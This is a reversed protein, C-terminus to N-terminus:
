EGGAAPPVTGATRTRTAARIKEDVIKEFRKTAEGIAFENMSTVVKDLHALAPGFDIASNSVQLSIGAGNNAGTGFRQSGDAGNAQGFQIAGIRAQNGGLVGSQRALDDSSRQADAIIQQDSRGGRIKGLEAEGKTIDSTIGFGSAGLLDRLKSKDASADEIKSGYFRNLVSADEGSMNFLDDAGVKANPNSAFFQAQALVRLKDEDGLAGVARLAEDASKKREIAINKEAELLALAKDVELEKLRDIDQQTKLKLAEMAAAAQDRDLPSGSNAENVLRNKDIRGQDIQRKIAERQADISAVSDGFSSSSTDLGRKKENAITVAGEQLRSRRSLQETFTDRQIKRIREYQQLQNKLSDETLKDLQDQAEKLQEVSVYQLDLMRNLIRASEVRRKEIDDIREQASAQEDLSTAGRLSAQIPDTQSFRENTKTLRLYDVNLKQIERQEKATARIRQGLEAIRESAKQTTEELEFMEQKLKEIESLKQSKNDAEQRNGGERASPGFGALESKIEAIRSGREAIGLRSAARQQQLSSLEAQRSRQRAAISNAETAEATPGVAFGASSALSEAEKQLQSILGSNKKTGGKADEARLREIELILTTVARATNEIAKARDRERTIQKQLNDARANERETALQQEEAYAGLASTVALIAGALLIYPGAAAVMASASAIASGTAASFGATTAALTGAHARQAAANQYTALTNRILAGTYQYAAAINSAYTTALFRLGAAIAAVIAVQSALRAGIGNGSSLLKLLGTLINVVDKTVSRLPGGIANALQLVQGQLRQLAAILTGSTQLFEQTASGAQQDESEGILSLNEAKMIEVINKIQALLINRQRVGAIQVSLQNREADTVGQTALKLELLVQTYSKSLGGVDHVNVGLREFIARKTEVRDLQSIITKMANGIEAGSRSTVKSTVATTAALESLRSNHNAFVSGTRSIAQLLDNSTVRFNNSLTNIKDLVPLTDEASGGFQYIASSLLEASKVVDLEAIRSALLAARTSELVQKETQGARAFVAAARLAEDSNGGLATTMEVIGSTVRRASEYRREFSTGLNNGVRALLVSAEELRATQAAAEAFGRVTAFVIATAGTWLGVKAIAHGLSDGIKRSAAAGELLTTNFKGQEINAELLQVKYGTLVNGTIKQFRLVEEVNGTKRNFVLKPDLEKAGSDIAENVATRTIQRNRTLTADGQLRKTQERHERRGARNHIRERERELDELVKQDQLFNQFHSKAVVADQEFIRALEAEKGALTTNKHLRAAAAERRLNTDREEKELAAAKKQDRKKQEAREKAAVNTETEEIRTIEGAANETVRTVRNVGAGSDETTGTINTSVGKKGVKQIRRVQTLEGGGSPSSLGAGLGGGGGGGSGTKGSIIDEAKKIKRKLTYGLREIASEDFNIKIKYEQGTIKQLKKDLKELYAHVRGFGDGKPVPIETQLVINSEIKNAM